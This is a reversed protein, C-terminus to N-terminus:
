NQHPIELVDKFFDFVSPQPYVAGVTDSGRCRTPSRFTAIAVLREHDKAVRSGSHFLHSTQVLLTTGAAGCFSLKRGLLSLIAELKRSKHIPFVPVLRHILSPLRIASFPGDDENHVDSLYVFLKLVRAANYDLHYLQSKTPEREVHVSKVIQISELIPIYGFHFYVLRIVDRKNDALLLELAAEHSVSKITRTKFFLKPAESETSYECLGLLASRLEQLPLSFKVPNTVICHDIALKVLRATEKERPSVSNEFSVRIARDKAICHQMKNSLRHAAFIHSIRTRVANIIRNM